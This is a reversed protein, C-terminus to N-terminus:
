EDLQAQVRNLAQQYATVPNIFLYLLNVIWAFFTCLGLILCIWFVANPSYRIQCDINYTDDKKKNPAVYVNAQFKAVFAFDVGSTGDIVEIASNRTIVQGGLKRMELAVADTVEELSRTTQVEAFVSKTPM